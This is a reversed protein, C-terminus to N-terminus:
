FQIHTYKSNTLCNKYSLAKNISIEFRSYRRPLSNSRLNIESLIKDKIAECNFESYLSNFLMKKYDVLRIPIMGHSYDIMNLLNKTDKFNETRSNRFKSRYLKGSKNYNQGEYAKQRFFKEYFLPDEVKQSSKKNLYAFKMQNYKVQDDILIRGLAEKKQDPKIRSNSNQNLHTIFIDSNSKVHATQKHITPKQAKRKPSMSLLKSKKYNSNGQASESSDKKLNIPNLNTISLGYSEKNNLKNSKRFTSHFKNSSLYGYLLNYSEKKEILSNRSRQSKGRFCAEM